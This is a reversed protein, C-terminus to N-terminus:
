GYNDKEGPWLPSFANASDQLFVCSGSSTVTPSTTPLHFLKNWYVIIYYRILWLQYSERDPSLFFISQMILILSAYNNCIQCAKLFLVLYKM